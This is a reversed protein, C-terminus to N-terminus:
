HPETIRLGAIKVAGRHYGSPFLTELDELEIGLSECTSIVTPLEKNKEFSERLFHIIKWHRDSLGGRVGLEEARFIAFIEDWEAPDVLFGRADLRYTKNSFVPLKSGGNLDPRLASAYCENYNLGALKCAGRLYGTPFLRKFDKLKLSNAKCTQYVLPLKGTEEMAKRLFFIVMWHESTLEGEINLQPALGTAFDRNWRRWDVLFGLADVTYTKNNYVVTNM